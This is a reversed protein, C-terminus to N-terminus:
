LVLLFLDLSFSSAPRFSFFFCICTYFLVVLLFLDLSFSAYILTFFLFFFCFCTYLLPLPSILVHDSPNAATDNNVRLCSSPYRRWRDRVWAGAGGEVIGCAGPAVGPSHWSVRLGSIYRGSLCYALLLLSLPTAETGEEGDGRRM